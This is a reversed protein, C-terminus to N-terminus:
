DSYSRDMWIRENVRVELYYDFEFTKGDYELAKHYKDICLRILTGSFYYDYYGDWYIDENEPHQYPEHYEGQEIENNSIIISYYPESKDDDNYYDHITPELIDSTSKFVYSDDVLFLNGVTRKVWDITGLIKFNSENIYELIRTFYEDITEESSIYIKDCYASTGTRYLYDGNPKPLDPVLGAELTEASYFQNEIYLTECSSLILVCILALSALFRKRM